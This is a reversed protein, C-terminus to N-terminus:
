SVDFEGIAVDNDHFILIVFSDERNQEKLIKIDKIKEAIERGLDLTIRNVLLGLAHYLDQKNHFLIQEIINGYEPYGFYSGQPTNLWHQIPESSLKSIM